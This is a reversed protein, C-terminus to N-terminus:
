EIKLSQFFALAHPSDPRMRPSSVQLIYVRNSGVIIRVVAQSGAELALVVERGPFAQHTITKSSTTTGKPFRVEAQKTAQNLIAEADAKADALVELVELAFNGAHAACHLHQLRVPGIEAQDDRSEIEPALPFKVRYKGAEVHEVWEALNLPSGALPGVSPGPQTPPENDNQVVTANPKSERSFYIAAFVGGGIILLCAIGTLIWTLASPAPPKLRKNQRSKPRPEDEADADDDEHDDVPRLRPKATEAKRTPRSPLEEENDPTRAVFSNGCKKCKVRKGALEDPVQLRADCNPCAIPFSM